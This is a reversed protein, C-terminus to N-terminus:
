WFRYIIYCHLTKCIAEKTSPFSYVRFHWGVVPHVQFAWSLFGSNKHIAWSLNLCEVFTQQVLNFDIFKGLTQTVYLLGFITFWWWLSVRRGMLTGGHHNFQHKQHACHTIALNCPQEPLAWIQPTPYPLTVMASDQAESWVLCGGECTEIPHREVSLEKPSIIKDNKKKWIDYIGAENGLLVQLM